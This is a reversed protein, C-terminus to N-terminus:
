SDRICPATTATTASFASPLAKREPVETYIDRYNEDVEAEKVELTVDRSIKGATVTLTHKGTEGPTYVNEDFRGRKDSSYVLKSGIPVSKMYEDYGAVDIGVSEGLRVSDKKLSPELYSLVGSKGKSEIGVANIVARQTTQMNVRSVAGDSKLVMSTSGGGDFSVADSCGLSAFLEAAESFTIGRSKPLRGDVALFYILGNEKDTGVATMPQRSDKLTPKTKVGNELLITGGGVADRIGEIDPNLEVRLVVGDGIEFNQMLFLSHRLSNHLVYGNEPIEVGEKNSLVDVVVGDEVVVEYGDDFYGPSKRGFGSDYIKLYEEPAIKNYFLCKTMDGTRESTVTIEFTFYDAFVSGEDTIALSAYSKDNSPTSVLKGDKIFLGECAAGSPYTTFFDANVAGVVNEAASVFQEVTSKKTIDGNSLIKLSVGPESLDAKLINFNNWGNEDLTRINIYSVGKSVPKVTEKRYVTEANATVGAATFLALLLLILKKM